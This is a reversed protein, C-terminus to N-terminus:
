YQFTKSKAEPHQQEGKDEVYIMSEVEGPKKFQFESSVAPEHDDVGVKIDEQKLVDTLDQTKDKMKEFFKDM